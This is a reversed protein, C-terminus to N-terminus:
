TDIQNHGPIPRDANHAAVRGDIWERIAAGEKSKVFRTTGRIQDAARVLDRTAEDRRSREEALEATTSRVRSLLRTVLSSVSSAHIGDPGGRADRRLLDLVDHLEMEVHETGSDRVDLYIRARGHGTDMVVRKSAFTLYPFEVGRVLCPVGSAHLPVGIMVGEHVPPPDRFPAVFYPIEEGDLVWLTYGIVNRRWVQRVWGLIRGNSEPIARIMDHIFGITGSLMVPCVFVIFIPGWWFTWIIAGIALICFTLTALDREARRVPLYPAIATGNLRELKM